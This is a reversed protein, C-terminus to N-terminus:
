RRVPTATAPSSRPQLASRAAEALRWLERRAARPDTALAARVWDLDAPEDVDSSAALHVITDGRAVCASELAAGLAPTSWPLAALPPWARRTGMLTVGGDLAPALVVDARELAAAAASFLGPLLAPSDTGIFLLRGVGAARLECEVAELREGLNGPRQAIVRARAGLLSQAWDADRADAPALVIPGPWAELDELTCALLAAAIECALDAGLTAALRQKGVGPRPRRCFVVLAADRNATAAPLNM